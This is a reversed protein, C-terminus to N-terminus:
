FYVNNIISVISSAALISKVFSKISFDSIMDIEKELPKLNEPLNQMGNATKLHFV